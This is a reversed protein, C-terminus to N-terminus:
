FMSKAGKERIDAVPGFNEEFDTQWEEKETTTEVEVEESSEGEVDDLCSEEDCNGQFLYIVRPKFFTKNERSSCTTQVRKRSIFVHNRFRKEGPLCTTQFVM